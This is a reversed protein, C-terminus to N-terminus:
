PKMSASNLSFLYVFLYIFLCLLFFNCVEIDKEDVEGEYVQQLCTKVEEVTLEDNGDKNYKNWYGEAQKKTVTAM